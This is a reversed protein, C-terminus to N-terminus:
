GTVKTRASLTGAWQLQWGRNGAMDPDVQFNAAFDMLENASGATHVLGMSDTAKVVWRHWVMGDLIARFDESDGPYFGNVKVDFISGNDTTTENETFGSTSPTLYIQVWPDADTLLLNGISMQQGGKFLLYEPAFRVEM